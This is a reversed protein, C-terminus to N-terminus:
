KPGRTRTHTCTKTTFYVSQQWHSQKKNCSGPSRTPIRVCSGQTSLPERETKGQHPAWPAACTCLSLALWLSLGKLKLIVSQVKLEKQSFM